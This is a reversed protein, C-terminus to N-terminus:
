IALYIICLINIHKHTSSSKTNACVCVCLSIHGRYFAPRNIQWYKNSHSFVVCVISKCKHSIHNDDIMVEIPLRIDFAIIKDVGLIWCNRCRLKNINDFTLNSDTSIKVIYCVNQRSADKLASDNSFVIGFYWRFGYVESREYLNWMQFYKM